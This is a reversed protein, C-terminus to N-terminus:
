WLGGLTAVKECFDTLASVARSVAFGFSPVAQILVIILILGFAELANYYRRLDAPLLWTVVRSGDLPPIPLMNFAALLVNADGAALLVNPLVQLDNYLHLRDVLLHALAFFLIALLVNSVPGALAVLANDRHPHALRRPNVPVPKAGGFLFNLAYLSIAPLLITMVPDIHPLPNLTMRGLDKATSDGRKWAMWAHAAEHVGLSVVVLVIVVAAGAMGLRSFDVFALPAPSLLSFASM